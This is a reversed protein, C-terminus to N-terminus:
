LVVRNSIIAMIIPPVPSHRIKGSQSICRNVELSAVMRIPLVARRIMLAPNMTEETDTTEEPVSSPSPIPIGDKNIERHLYRTIRIGAANKRLRKKPASPTHCANQNVSNVAAM